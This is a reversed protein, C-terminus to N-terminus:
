VPWFPLWSGFSCSLLSFMLLDIVPIECECGTPYGRSAPCGPHVGRLRWTFQTQPGQYMTVFITWQLTPFAVSGLELKCCYIMEVTHSTYM